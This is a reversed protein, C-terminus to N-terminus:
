KHKGADKLTCSRILEMPKEAAYWDTLKLWVEATETWTSDPYEKILQAFINRAEAPRTSRLCFGMQFLIWARRRVSKATDGKEQELAAKYYLVAEKKYGSKRLLEALRFPKDVKDSKGALSKLLSLINPESVKASPVLVTDPDHGSVASADPNSQQVTKASVVDTGAAAKTNPEASQKKSKDIKIANIREILRALQNKERIQQPTDRPVSIRSKWLESTIKPNLRAALKDGPLRKITEASSFDICVVTLLLVIWLRCLANDIRWGPNYMINIDTLIMQDCYGQPNIKIPVPIIVALIM